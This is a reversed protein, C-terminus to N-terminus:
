KIKMIEPITYFLDRADRHFSPAIPIKGGYWSNPFAGLMAYKARLWPLGCVVYHLIVPDQTEYFTKPRFKTRRDCGYVGKGRHPNSKLKQSNKKSGVITFKHVNSCQVNPLIRVASKGIDYALFYQGHSRRREWYKMGELSSSNMEVISHHRRFLTIHKFYNFFDPDDQWKTM